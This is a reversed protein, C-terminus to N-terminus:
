NTFKHIFFNYHIIPHIHSCPPSCFCIRSFYKILKKHNFNCNKGVNQNKKKLQFKPTDYFHIFNQVTLKNKLVQPQKCLQQPPVNEGFFNSQRGFHCLQPGIMERQGLSVALFYNM